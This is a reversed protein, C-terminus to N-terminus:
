SREGKDQDCFERVGGDHREAGCIRFVRMGSRLSFVLFGFMDVLQIPLLLMLLLLLSLPLRCMEGGRCPTVHPEFLSREPLVAAM